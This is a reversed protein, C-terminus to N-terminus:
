LVAGATDFLAGRTQEKIRRMVEDAIRSVDQGPAAQVTINFANNHTHETSQRIGGRAAGQVSRQLANREDKNTITAEVSPEKSGFIADWVKGIARIPASIIKWFGGIWDAFAEWFPKV